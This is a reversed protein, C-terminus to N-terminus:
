LPINWLASLFQKFHNSVMSSLRFKSMDVSRTITLPMDFDAMSRYSKLDDFILESGKVADDQIFEHLTPRKMNEVVQAKTQNSEREKMGALLWKVLVMIVPVEVEYQRIKNKELVAKMLRTLKLKVM